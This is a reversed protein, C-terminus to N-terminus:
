FRTFPRTRPCGCCRGWEHEGNCKGTNAPFHSGASGEGTRLDELRATSRPRLSVLARIPTKRCPGTRASHRTRGPGSSRDATVAGRLGSPLRRLLRHPDRGLPAPPRVDALHALEPFAAPGVEPPGAQHPR